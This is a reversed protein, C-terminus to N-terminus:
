ACGGGDPSQMEGQDGTVHFVIHDQIAAAQHHLARCREESKRLFGPIYGGCLSLINSKVFGTLFTFYGGDHSHHIDKM